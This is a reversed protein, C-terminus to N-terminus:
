IASEVQFRNKFLHRCRGAKCETILPQKHTEMRGGSSGTKWLSTMSLDAGPTKATRGAPFSSDTLHATLDFGM